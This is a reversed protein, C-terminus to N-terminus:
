SFAGTVFNILKKDTQSIPKIFFILALIYIKGNIEKWKVRKENGKETKIKYCIRFM